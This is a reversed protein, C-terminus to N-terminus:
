KSEGKKTKTIKTLPYMSISLQYISDLPETSSLLRGMDRRFNKILEKAEPLRNTNIAMTISSQSRFEIPINKLAEIAGELIQVQQERHAKSTDINLISSSAEDTPIYGDETPKLLGVELLRRLSSNVDTLSLGLHSAIAAPKSSSNNLKFYELIAYHQWESIVQFVELSHNSYNEDSTSKQSAPVLWRQIENKEFGLKQGIKNRLSTGIAIQYNMIKSLNSPDLGLDRSYCRLSYSGNRSKKKQLDKKLIEILPDNKM